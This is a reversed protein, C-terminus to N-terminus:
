GARLADERQGASRRVFDEFSTPKRRLLHGLTSPNGTFGHQEYYAFMKLLTRVQYDGLGSARATREWDARPRAQAAVPRGLQESIVKAVDVQSMAPSGVLEYTAGEHGPDRLVIVAAEAVDRLDVMSLCTEASYPIPYVGNQRIQDWHALVNQMYITPQLITIPLGSELLLEEVRMKQWHHPMAEIQPHLVSHFVLREVREARAARIVIRGMRLEDPSVNPAAHYIARVGHAARAMSAGDLMDAILVQVGLAELRAVHDSRHAVARVTEGCQALAQIVAQGTKGGSGTLLIV